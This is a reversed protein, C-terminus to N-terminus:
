FYVPLIADDGPMVADSPVPELGEKKNKSGEIKFPDDDGPIIIGKSKSKQKKNENIDEDDNNDIDDNELDKEVDKINLNKLEHEKRRKENLNKMRIARAKALNKSRQIRAEESIKKKVTNRTPIYRKNSDDNINSIDDDDNNNNDNNDDDDDIDENNDVKNLRYLLEAIDRDTKSMDQALPINYDDEDSLNEDYYDHTLVPQPQRLVQAPPTLPARRSVVRQQPYAYQPTQQPQYYQTNTRRNNTNM